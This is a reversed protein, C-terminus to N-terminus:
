IHILSLGFEPVLALNKRMNETDHEALYKYFKRSTTREGLGELIDRTYFVLKRTLKDDENFSKRISSELEAQSTTRMSGSKAFLDLVKSDTTSLAVGGNETETFKSQEKATKVFQNM